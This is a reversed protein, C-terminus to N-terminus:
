STHDSVIVWNGDKKQWLLSFHGDLDGAQRALHWKGVVYAHTPNMVKVQLLRFSLTGMAAPDPYSKRYNNLTPQWGYTLGRKGIFALSDSNWYGKMFGELDGKSWAVEQLRMVERIAAQEKKVDFSSNTQGVPQTCGAYLSFLIALYLLRM